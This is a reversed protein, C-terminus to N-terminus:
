GAPRSPPSPRPRRFSPSGPHLCGWGDGEPQLALEHEQSSGTLPLWWPSRSGSSLSSASAQRSPAAASASDAPYPYETPPPAPPAPTQTAGDALGKWACGQSLEGRGGPGGPRAWGAGGGARRPEKLCIAGGEPRVGGGCRFSGGATKERGGRFVWPGREGRPLLPFRSSANGRVEDKGEDSARGGSRGRMCGGPCGGYRRGTWGRRRRWRGRSCVVYWGRNGHIRVRDWGVERAFRLSEGSM